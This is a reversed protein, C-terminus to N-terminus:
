LFSLIEFLEEKLLVKSFIDLLVDEFYVYYIEKVNEFFIEINNVKLYVKSGDVKVSEVRGEIQKLFDQLNM